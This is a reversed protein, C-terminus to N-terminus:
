RPPRPPPRPPPPRARRRAPAPPRRPRVRGHDGAATAAAPAAPRVHRPRLHGPHPRGTRAHDNRTVIACRVQRCDIGDAIVACRHRQRQLHRRARVPTALGEGYSPPNSSVWASAGTAETQDVGGGCPSPAHGPRSWACPSTSARARTTAAARCASPSARPPALGQSQSVRLTRQGDSAQLGDASVTGGRQRAVDLPGAAAPGVLGVLAGLAAALLVAVGTARSTRRRPRRHPRRQESTSLMM